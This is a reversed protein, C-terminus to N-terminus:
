LSEHLQHYEWRLLIVLGLLMTATEVGILIFVFLGDPSRLLLIDQVM